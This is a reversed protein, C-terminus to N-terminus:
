KFLKFLSGALDAVDLLDHGDRVASFGRRRITLIVRGVGVIVFLPVGFTLLESRLEPMKMYAAGVLIAAGSYLLWFHADSGDDDDDHVHTPAQKRRTPRNVDFRREPMDRGTNNQIRELRDQFSTNDM